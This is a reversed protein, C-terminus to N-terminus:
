RRRPWPISKSLIWALEKPGFASSRMTRRRRDRVVTRPRCSRPRSSTPALLSTNSVTDDPIRFRERRREFGPSLGAPEGGQEFVGIAHSRARTTPLRDPSPWRACRGPKCRVRGAVRFGERRTARSSCSTLVVQLFVVSKEAARPDSLLSAGMSRGPEYNAELFAADGAVLVEEAADRALHAGLLGPTHGPVHLLEVGDLMPLAAPRHGALPPRPRLRERPLCRRRRALEGVSLRARTRAPQRVGPRRDRRVAGPRWRLRRPPAVSRRLRSRRGRRRRGRARHVPGPRRRASARVGVYLPAPWYGEV